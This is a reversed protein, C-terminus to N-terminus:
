SPLEWGQDLLMLPDTDTILGLRQGNMLKFFQAGYRVFAIRDGPTHWPTVEGDVSFREPRVKYAGPGMSLVVGQQTKLAETDVTSSDLILGHETESPITLALVLIKWGSPRPLSYAPERERKADLFKQLEELQKRVGSPTVFDDSNFQHASSKSISDGISGNRNGRTAEHVHRPLVLSM